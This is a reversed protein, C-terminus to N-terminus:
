VLSQQNANEQGNSAGNYPKAANTSKKRRLTIVLTIAELAVAIAGMVSIVVIYSTRWKQDPKLIDLGKFVNVVSLIIVAYGVTQHYAKWYFRYKHEKRPRLLLAFVQITGLSFLAIGISRHTHYVVGKSKSGLSLGTAWGAVGVAYGIIQCSVHLYFWANNASNFTKLYRAVIAGLPLLIGWSVANLVGHVNKKRMRGDGGDSGSAVGTLLDVTGKAELNEKGFAHVAPSSGNVSGGVQWVQNVRTLGRPLRVEGYVVMLGDGAYEAELNSVEYDIKSPRIPGYESVNFTKAVVSGDSQRYAVLSQSGVMGTSRPNIAWAVWGSPKTPAAAFALRLTSTPPDYTWHLQASLHPLDACTSYLRNKTFARSSCTQSEAPAFASFFLLLLVLSPLTPSAM